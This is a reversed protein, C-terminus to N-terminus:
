FLSGETVIFDTTNESWGPFAKENILATYIHYRGFSGCIAEVVKESGAMSTLWEHVIAVDLM